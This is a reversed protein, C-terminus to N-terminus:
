SNSKIKEAFAPIYHGAYSEGAIYLPNDKLALNPNNAFFNSLFNVFHNAADRTNDVKKTNNNYSFGVGVPQDICILHGFFNWSWPNETAKFSGKKGEIYIPGVENFCGFQSPAGPGGQLWIILPISKDEWPLSFGQWLSYYMSATGKPYYWDIDEYGSFSQYYLKAGVETAFFDTTNTFASSAPAIILAILVVVALKFLYKM